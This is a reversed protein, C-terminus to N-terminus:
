AYCKTKILEAASQEDMPKGTFYGQINDCKMYRLFDYQEKTEVGEAITEMNLKHVLEILADTIEAQRNNETINSIFSKDIKLTDMPLDKLYTLSSYGTGFDDLSLSVGISKLQNLTEIISDIDNIFVSETIELEIEDPNVKYEKLIRRVTEVFDPRTLQVASVNVSVVGRQGYIKKWKIWTRCVERLVWEGIEIIDGTEEAIPIFLAPSIWGLEEDYWRILAEFGRFENRYFDYQPQYYMEFGNNRICEVMKQELVMRNQMDNRMDPQFMVVKNKGAAKAHYMAIDAYQLLMKSEQAQEPCIAYGLSATVHIIKNNVDFGNDFLHKIKNVCREIELINKKGSIVVVFEDGGFRIIEHGAESSSFLRKAVEKIILDGTMHGLTDNLKKFNDLGVFVVTVKDNTLEAESMKVHIMKEFYARNPLGTLSDHFSLYEFKGNDGSMYDFSVLRRSKIHLFIITGISIITFLIVFVTCLRMNLSMNAQRLVVIISYLALIFVIQVAILKLVLQLNDKKKSIKDM